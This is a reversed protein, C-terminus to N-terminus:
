FEKPYIRGNGARERAEEKTNCVWDSRWGRDVCWKIEKEGSFHKLLVLGFWCLLIAMVFLIFLTDDKDDM